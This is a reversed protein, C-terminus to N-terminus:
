TIQCKLPMMIESDYKEILGLMKKYDNKRKLPIDTRKSAMGYTKILQGRTAIWLRHGRFNKIETQYNLPRTTLDIIIGNSRFLSQYPDDIGDCTLIKKVNYIENGNIKEYESGLIKEVNSALPFNIDIEDVHERVQERFQRDTQVHWAVSGFLVGGRNSLDEAVQLIKTFNDDMFINVM